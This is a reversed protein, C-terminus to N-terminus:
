EGGGLSYEAVRVTKGEANVVPVLRSSVSLGRNRLENIRAALRFCSFASLAEGATISKGAELWHRIAALQTDAHIPAVNESLAFRPAPLTNSTEPQQNIM